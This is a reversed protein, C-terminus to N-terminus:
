FIAKIAYWSRNELSGPKRLIERESTLEKVTAEYRNYGASCEVPANNKPTKSALVFRLFFNRRNQLSVGNSVVSVVRLRCSLSSKSNPVM